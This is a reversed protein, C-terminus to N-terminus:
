RLKLHFSEHSFRQRKPSSSLDHTGPENSIRRSISQMESVGKTEKAQSLGDPVQPDSAATGEQPVVDPGSLLGASYVVIIPGLNPSVLQLIDAMSQVLVRDREPGIACM